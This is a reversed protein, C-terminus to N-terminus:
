VSGLHRKNRNTITVVCIGTGGRSCSVTHKLALGPGYDRNYCTNQISLSEITSNPDTIDIEPLCAFGESLQAHQAIVDRCRQLHGGDVVVEVLHRGM